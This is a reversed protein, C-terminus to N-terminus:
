PNVLRHKQVKGLANRPLQDVTHVIRPQKFPAVLEDVHERLAEVTPAEAGPQLVLWATVTEGWEESPTGTVAADAVGPHTRVADEVERPYVNYGGSIILEKARGALTLYGGSDIFGIDGTRFWGDTFSEANVEPRQWYGSFVNPGRVLVDGPEGQPADVKLEVGPLPFGVTGARREGDYPNSILMVTETMGYRELIRQGTIEEIREHLAAPLPASGSVILRLKALEAARPSTALRTHMTPVGFFLTGNHEAIADLVADTEFKELIVASAGNLLTGHLGVGLGHMHFLPLPLVLRDSDTWRWAVQLARASALLNQHSLLAGKPAGTTGSTYGMLAPDAGAANDIDRAQGDPLDVATPTVLMDPAAEHIWEAWEPNDVIAAVPQADTVIHQVEGRRYAGNVPVVVLGLRMCAAYAVVLSVSNAGSLMVHNGRVLGARALRGAIVSSEALLDGRTVWGRAPDHLQRRDPDALWHEVWVAPLSGGALLDDADGAQGNPYHIESTVM